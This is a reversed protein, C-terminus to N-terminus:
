NKKPPPMGGFGGLLSESSAAHRKAAHIDLIGSVKFIPGGGQCIYGIPYSSLVYNM